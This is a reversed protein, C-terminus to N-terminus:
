FALIYEGTWHRRVRNIEIENSTECIEGAPGESSLLRTNLHLRNRLVIPIISIPSFLLVPLCDKGLAVRDLECGV